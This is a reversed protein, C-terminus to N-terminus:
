DDLDEGASDTIVDIVLYSATGGDFSNPIHAGTVPDFVFLVDALVGGRRHVGYYRNEKIDFALSDVDRLDIPGEPGNATGFPLASPSFAGSALDLTGLQGHNAGLLERNGNFTIAELSE